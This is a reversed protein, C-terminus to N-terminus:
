QTIEHKQTTCLSVWIRDIFGAGGTTWFHHMVGHDEGAGLTHNVVVTPPKSSGCITIGAVGNGFTPGPVLAYASSLLTFFAVQLLM